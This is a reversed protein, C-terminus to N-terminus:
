GALSAIEPLKNAKVLTPGGRANKRYAVKRHEVADGVRVPTVASKFPGLKDAIASKAYRLAKESEEVDHLAQLYVSALEPDIIVDGEEIGPTLKRIAQYTADSGEIPPLRYGPEGPLTALFDDAATALSQIFVDDRHIVYLEFDLYAKLVPLYCTQAGTCYLHWQSQVFYPPPVQDSGGPGYEDDVIATKAEVLAVEGTDRHVALRDPSSFHRPAGEAVWTGTPLVDFEPHEEAFWAVVSPELLRGRRQVQSETTGDYALNGAMIHWTEFYSSFYSKGIIAAIRSSSVGARLWEPSGPVLTSEMISGTLGKLATTM